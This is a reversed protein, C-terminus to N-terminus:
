QLLRLMDREDVSRINTTVFGDSAASDFLIMTPIHGGTIDLLLKPHIISYSFEAANTQEFFDAVGEEDGWFVLEIGQTDINNRSVIHSLQEASYKCYKCGVGYFLFIKKKTGWEYQPNQAVFDHFLEVDVGGTGGSRNGGIFNVIARPPYKMTPYLAIACLALFAYSQLERVAASPWAPLNRSFLLVVILAVNKFASALPSIDVLDGFCHCNDERGAFTIVALFLTFLVLSGLLTYYFQKHYINLLYGLGLSLEAGVVLRALLSAVDLSFLDFSFIYLEFSDISQMKLLASAVFTVGVIITSVVSVYPQLSKM